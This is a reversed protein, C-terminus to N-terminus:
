QEDFYENCDDCVYYYVCGGETKRVWESSHCKPCKVDSNYVSYPACKLLEKYKKLRKALIKASITIALMMQLGMPSGDLISRHCVSRLLADEEVFENDYEENIQILQDDTLNNLVDNIDEKM